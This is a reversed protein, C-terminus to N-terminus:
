GVGKWSAGSIPLSGCAPETSHSLGAAQREDGAPHPQAQLRGCQGAGPERGAIAAQYPEVGRGEVHEVEKSCAREM